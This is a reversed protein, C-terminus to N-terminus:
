IDYQKYDQTSRKPINATYFLSQSCINASVNESNLNDNISFIEKMFIPAEGTKMKFM